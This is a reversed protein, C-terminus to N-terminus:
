GDLKQKDILKILPKISCFASTGQPNGSCDSGRDIYGVVKSSKNFVPGGSSGVIFTKDAAYLEQNVIHTKASINIGRLITPTDGRNYQPYAVSTFDGDGSNLEQDEIEFGKDKSINIDLVILDETNYFDHLSVLYTKDENPPLFVKAYNDIKDKLEERNIQSKLGFINHLCTVLGLNKVLFATGRCNSKLDEIIFVYNQIDTEFSNPIPFLESGTMENYKKALSQYKTSYVTMVMKYYNITGVLFRNFAEEDPLDDKFYGNKQAGEKLGNCYAYHLITRFSRYKKNLINPKENVVLGTVMQRSHSTQLRLKEYNIEFKNKTFIDKLENGLQVNGDVISVISQPLEKAKTSLTIDDCYRTYLIKYKRALCTLNNDLTRCVYNSIVPSTPAGQPLKGKHCVLQAISLAIADNFNFPPKKFVGLVRGFHITDFFNKLDINLVVNKNTHIAANTVVSRKEVFGMAAKKPEYIDNLIGCLRKQIYKLQVQPAEIYRVGGSKKKVPFTHYCKYSQRYTCYYRLTNLKCKLIDALEELTQIKLFKESIEKM